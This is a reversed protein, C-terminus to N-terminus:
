FDSPWLAANHDNPFSRIRIMVRGDPLQERWRAQFTHPHDQGPDRLTFVDVEGLIVAGSRALAIRDREMQYWTEESMFAPRNNGQNQDRQQSSQGGGEGIGDLENGKQHGGDALNKGDEGKGALSGVDSQAIGDRRLEYGGDIRSQGTSAITNSREDTQFRLQGNDVDYTANPAPNNLNPNFPAYTHVYAVRGNEDTQFTSYGFEKPNDPDGNSEVLEFRTNPPLDRNVFPERVGFPREAAANQTANGGLDGEIDVTRQSRGDAGEVSTQVIRVEGGTPQPWNNTVQAAYPTGYHGDTTVEAGRPARGVEPNIRARQGSHTEVHVIRGDDGTYFTGRPQGNRETVNYQTNPEFTLGRTETFPRSQAVNSVDREQVPNMRQEPSAVQPNGDPGTRFEQFLPGRDVNYAAGDVMSALEPNGGEGVREPAAVWGPRGNDDTQVTGRYNGETDTVEFRTNPPLDARSSFAEDPAPSMPHDPGITQRGGTAAPVEGIIVNRVSTTEQGNKRVTIEETRPNGDPGAVFVDNHNGVQVRYQADGLPFAVEPNIGHRTNPVVADVYVRGEADVHVTSRVQGDEGRVTITTDAPLDRNGSFLSEGDGLRVDERHTTSPEVWPTQIQPDQTGRHAAAEDVSAALDGKPEHGPPMGNEGVPSSSGDPEFAHWGGDPPIKPHQKGDVVDPSSSYVNGHQDSWALSDPAIVRQGTERAVHAAISNEGGAAADCGVFVIPRGATNPHNNILEVLEARTYRTDGIRVGDGDTHVDLVVHGDTVPIRSSLDRLRDETHLAVGSDTVQSNRIAQDVRQSVEGIPIPGEHAPLGLDPNPAFDSPGEVNQHNDFAGNQADAVTAAPPKHVDGDSNWTGFDPALVVGNPPPASVEHLVGHEELSALNLKGKDDTLNTDFIPQLQRAGGPQDFAPAVQSLEVMLPKDLVYVHYGKGLSDPLIAREGFGYPQGDPRLPSLFDGGPSGFRDLVTGAPLEVVVRPGDAGHNVPWDISGDAKTHAQIFQDYTGHPGYPNYTPEVIAAARQDYTGVEVDGPGTSDHVSHYPGDQSFNEVVGAPNGWVNKHPLPDPAGTTPDAPDGGRAAPGPDPAVPDPTTPAPSPTPDAPWEHSSAPSTETPTPTSDAPTSNPPTNSPPQNSAPPTTDAPTNRAAPATDTPTNRAMPEPGPTRAPASPEPRTHPPGAPPQQTRPPADSGPTRPPATPASAEPRAHAPGGGPQPGFGGPAPGPGTPGFGGPQPGFGGPQPGFGGMPPQNGVPGRPDPTAPGRQQAPGADHFAQVPPGTVSSATVGDTHHPAPSNQEFLGTGGSASPGRGGGAPGGAPPAGGGPPTFGGAASAGGPTASPGSGASPPLGGGGPAHPAGGPAGPTAHVPAPAGPTTHLGGPAAHPAGGPAGPVAHGGGPMGPAAHPAGPTGGPASGPAGPTSHSGGPTPGGPTGHSGGATPGGPTSGGPTSGSPVPGGPTSHSGGPTPGASGPMSHSGGPTPGGGGIGPMAGGGSLRSGVSSPSSGGTSPSGGAAAPAPGGATPMGVSPRAGPAGGGNSPAPGGPQQGGGSFASPSASPAHDGGGGGVTPPAHVTPGPAPPAAVSAAATGDGTGRPGNLGDRSVTPGGGTPGGGNTSPPASNSPGDGPSGPSGPSAPPPASTPSLDPPGSPTPGLDPPGGDPGGANIRPPEVTLGDKAGGIGGSVAGASAGMLVDKATIDQGMVAATGVTSVMGEVAGRTAGVAVQGALGGGQFKLGGSVGGVLGSVAGSVAAEGTKGWDWNKREGSLMQIGQIAADIGVSIAVEKLIAIILQRFTFQVILRTAQQAIPIGASATGFTAFAAAILAAIEIALAILSAIISLKTYEVELATSDCSEALQECIKQLKPLYAEDGDAFKKWYDQFAQVAQGTQSSVVTSAAGNAEDIVAKVGEGATRYADAMRRLATEDGEPWSQGVVIPFLWTIESPIEIGM